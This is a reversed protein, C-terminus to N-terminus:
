TDSISHLSARRGDPHVIILRGDDDIDAATVTRGDSLTLPFPLRALRRWRDRGASLAHDDVPDFLHRARTLFALSLRERLTSTSSANLHASLTTAIDTLEPPFDLPSGEINVGVGVIAAPGGPGLTGECLIGAVKRDNLLLDNPWKIRPRLATVEEIAETLAVGAILTLQPLCSASLKPRAIVSLYLHGIGPSHWRRGRRGRGATQEEAIFATGHPAGRQLAQMALTNTSTVVGLRHVEAPYDAFPSRAESM